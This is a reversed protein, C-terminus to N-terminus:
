APSRDLWRCIGQWQELDRAVRGPAIDIGSPAVVYLKCLLPRGLFTLRPHTPARWTGDASWAWFLRTAEGGSPGPKQFVTTFFEGGDVPRRIVPTTMEYGSGAYCYEPTHVATLGPHGLSLTVFFSRGNAAHVYRRALHAIGPENFDSPQDAGVWDGFRLPISPLVPASEGGNWRNTVVGHAAATVAIVALVALYTARQAHM